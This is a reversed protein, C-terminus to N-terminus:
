PRRSQFDISMDSLPLEHMRTELTDDPLRVRYGDIVYPIGEAAFISPTTTVQFHLHPARADGSSGIRALVQGRRVHDGEKVRLSGAQLHAYSAFQGGGLDIAIVNGGITERTMPVATRFGAATRPVNDPLGDIVTVVTGDGVALVEEGYAHYSRNDLEDGSFMAGDEMQLWDIAYRRAIQARGDVVLLGLRHHSDNSPASSAIWNSGTVPPGLSKVESHHTSIAPGEAVNNDAHVRHSLKDPVNGDFALCVFAVVGENAALQLGAQRQDAPSQAGRPQLLAALRESEFSVIEEGVSEASVVDVRNISLPRTAFNRLHLEYIVYSRGASPFATPEFPTVIELQLPPFDAVEPAIAPTTTSPRAVAECGNPPPQDEITAATAGVCAAAGLHVMVIAFSSSRRHGFMLSNREQPNLLPTPASQLRRATCQKRACSATLFPSQGANPWLSNHVCNTCFPLNADTDAPILPGEGRQSEDHLAATQRDSARRISRM